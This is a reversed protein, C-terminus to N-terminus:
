MYGGCFVYMCLLSYCLLNAEGVLVGFIWYFENLLLVWAGPKVRIALSSLVVYEACLV